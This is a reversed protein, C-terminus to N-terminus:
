QAHKGGPQAVGSEAYGAAAKGDSNAVDGLSLVGVLRKERDLVLLRRLQHEAMKFAVQHTDDDEFCYQVDATMVERVPTEPGKGEAVARIAIDRDTITGVLQDNEGVPLFGSEIGAMAQAIEQIKHDPNAIQVDRSMADAVRM